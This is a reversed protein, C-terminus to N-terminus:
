FPALAATESNGMLSTASAAWLKGNQTARGTKKLGMLTARVSSEKFGLAEVIEAVARGDAYGSLHRMIAEKVGKTRPGTAKRVGRAVVPAKPQKPAAGTTANAKATGRPKRALSTIKDTNITVQDGAGFPIPMAKKAADILMEYKATALGVEYAAQEIVNRMPTTM